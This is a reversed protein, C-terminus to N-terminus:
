FIFHSQQRDYGQISFFFILTVNKLQMLVFVFVALFTTFDNSEPTQITGLRFVTIHNALCVAPFVTSPSKVKMEQKSKQDMICQTSKKQICNACVNTKKREGWEEQGTSLISGIDKCVHNALAGGSLQM